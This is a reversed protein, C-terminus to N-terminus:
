EPGIHNLTGRQDDEGWRGWNRVREALREFTDAM